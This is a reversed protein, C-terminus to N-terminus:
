KRGLLERIVRKTDIPFSNKLMWEAFGPNEKVPKGKDKGFAYVAVGEDNKVIKGALDIRNGMCFTFLQEPTKGSLDDYRTIQAQLVKITARVDGLADHADEHAENCYFQMAAELTRKEKEAFITYADVFISGPEPWSVGCRAFEASLLPVDFNLINYGAFDCGKLFELLSKYINAFTPKLAVMDDTIKHVESAQKPIPRMPNILTTREDIKQMLTPQMKVAAISVIRDDETDTGTTELDFFVIPKM